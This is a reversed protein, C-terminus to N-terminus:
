SIFFSGSLSQSHESFNHSRGSIFDSLPFRVALQSLSDKGLQSLIVLGRRKAWDPSAMRALQVEESARQPSPILGIAPDVEEWRRPRGSVGRCAERNGPDEMESWLVERGTRFERM